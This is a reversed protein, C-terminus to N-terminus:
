QPTPTASDSVAAAKLKRPRRRTPPDSAPKGDDVVLIERQQPSPLVSKKQRTKRPTTVPLTMTEQPCEEDSAATMSTGQLVGTPARAPQESTMNEERALQAACPKFTRRHVASLGHVELTKFHDSVPYGRNNDFAYQPFAEHLVDMIDDRCVKALNSAAAVSWSRSDGKVISHAAGGIEVDSFLDVTAQPAHSGDVLVLPPQRPVSGFVNDRLSTSPFDLDKMLVAMDDYPTLNAYLHCLLQSTSLYGHENGLPRELEMWVGHAAAHMSSMSSAFINEDDVVAHNAITIGWHYRYQEDSKVGRLCVTACKPM